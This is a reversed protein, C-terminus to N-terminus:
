KKASECELKKLVQNIYTEQSLSLIGESVIYDTKINFYFKLNDLDKITLTTLKSVSETKM